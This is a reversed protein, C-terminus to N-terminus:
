PEDYSTSAEPLLCLTLRALAYRREKARSSERSPVDKERKKRETQERRGKNSCNSGAVAVAGM